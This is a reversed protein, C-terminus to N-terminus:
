PGPGHSKPILESLASLLDFLSAIRGGYECFQGFLAPSPMLEVGQMEVFLLTLLRYIM